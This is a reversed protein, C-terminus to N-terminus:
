RSKSHTWVLLVQQDNIPVAKLGILKEPPDNKMSCILVLSIAPLSLEFNFEAIPRGDTPSYRINLDKSEMDVIPDSASKIKDIIDPSPYSKSGNDKWIKYPNTRINDITYRIVKWDNSLDEYTLRLTTNISVSNNSIHNNNNDSRPKNLSNVYLISYIKEDADEAVTSIMNVNDVDFSQDSLITRSDIIQNGLLSLLGFSSYIPKKILTVYNPITNNIQFRSLLTQQTFQHPHYSLFSNDSSLLTFNIKQDLIHKMDNNKQDRRKPSTFYTEIHQLINKVSLGAYTADAKWEKPRSWDIDIDAQNNMVEIVPLHDADQYRAMLERILTMEKDIISRIDVSDENDQNNFHNGDRSIKSLHRGGKSHFSIALKLRDKENMMIKMMKDILTWCYSSSAGSNHPLPLCRESPGILKLNNDAEMLGLYSASFYSIFSKLTMNSIGDFDKKDPENWSEFNWTRVYDAGYRNIYRSALSKILDWWIILEKQYDFSSKSSFSKFFKSPNGQIQLGPKLNFEKLLDLFNDLHEFNYDIYETEKEKKLQVLDLLWNVRVQRYDKDQNPAGFMPISGILALNQRM